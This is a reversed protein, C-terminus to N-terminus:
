GALQLDYVGWGGDPVQFNIFVENQPTLYAVQLATIGMTVDFDVVQKAPNLPPLQNGYEWTGSQMSSFGNCLILYPFQDQSNVAVVVLTGSGTDQNIPFGNVVKAKTFTLGDPNPLAPGTPPNFYTWNSDLGDTPQDFYLNGDSGVLLLIPGLYLDVLAVPYPPPNYTWTQRRWDIQVSAQPVSGWQWDGNTDTYLVLPAAGQEGTSGAIVTTPLLGAIVPASDEEHVPGNNAISVASFNPPWPTTYIQPGYVQGTSSWWSYPESPTPQNSWSPQSWTVGDPASQSYAVGNSVAAIVIGENVNQVADFCSFNLGSQNPLRNFNSWNGQDDSTAFWLRGPSGASAGPPVDLAILMVTASGFAFVLRIAQFVIQDPNPLQKKPGWENNPPQINEWPSGNADLHVLHLNTGSFYMSIKGASM